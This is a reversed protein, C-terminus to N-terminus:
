VPLGFWSFRAASLREFFQGLVRGLMLVWCLILLLLHYSNGSRGESLSLVRGLVVKRSKVVGVVLKFFLADSGGCHEEDGSLLLYKGSQRYRGYRHCYSRHGGRYLSGGSFGRSGCVKLHGSYARGWWYRSHISM